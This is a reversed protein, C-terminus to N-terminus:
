ADALRKLLNADESMIRRTLERIHQERHGGEVVQRIGDRAVDNMSRHQDDATHRLAEMEEDPLRILFTAMVLMIDATIDSPLLLIMDVVLIITLVILLVMTVLVMLLVITLLVVTLLVVTVPPGL